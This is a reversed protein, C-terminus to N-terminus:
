AKASFQGAHSQLNQRETARWEKLEGDLEAALIADESQVNREKSRRESNQGGSNSQRGEQFLQSQPSSTNQTVELKEVQLGQSQLAARLQSMQNELLSKANSHETMFQAVVQGNQLTIKVDVQGLNEPFLSIIAEAVGNKKVIELKGTILKTMEESFKRVPVPQQIEAKASGTIGDKMLLQGATVIKGDDQAGKNSDEQNLAEDQGQGNSSEKAATSLSAKLEQLLTVPDSNDSSVATESHNGAANAVVPNQHGQLVQVSQSDAKVNKNQLPQYIEEAGLMQAPAVANNVSNPQVNDMIPEIISAFSAVLKQAQLKTTETGASAENLIAALNNLQDQVAFRVTAPNEALATLETQQGPEAQDNGALVAAAQALWGQLAALLAPDSEIADDLKGLEPIIEEVLNGLTAPKADDGQNTSDAGQLIAALSQLNIATEGDGLKGSLSQGGLTQILTQSFLGAASTGQVNTQNASGTGSTKGTMGAGLSMMQFVLSM